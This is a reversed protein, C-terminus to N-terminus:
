ADGEYKQIKQKADLDNRFLVTMVLAHPTRIKVGYKAGGVLAGVIAAIEDMVHHVVGSSSASLSESSTM